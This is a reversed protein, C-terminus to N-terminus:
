VSVGSASFPSFKQGFKEYYNERPSGNTRMGVPNGDALYDFLIIEYKWSSGNDV